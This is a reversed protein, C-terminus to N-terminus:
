AKTAWLKRVTKKVFIGRRLIEIMMGTSRLHAMTGPESKKEGSSAWSM